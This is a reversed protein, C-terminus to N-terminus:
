TPAPPAAYEREQRDYRRRKDDGAACSPRPRFREVWRAEERPQKVTEKDYEAENAAQECVDTDVIEGIGSAPVVETIQNACTHKKASTARTRTLTSM